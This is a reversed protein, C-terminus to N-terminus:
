PDDRHRLAKPGLAEVEGDRSGRFGHVSQTAEGPHDERGEQEQEGLGGRGGLTTEAVAVPHEEQAVREELPLLDSSCM